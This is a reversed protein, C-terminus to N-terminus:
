ASPIEEKKYDYIDLGLDIGMDGIAALLDHTLTAGINVGDAFLGIFLEVAGGTDRIDKFFSGHQRLREVTRALFNGVDSDDRPTFPTHWYSRDYNGELLTGTPTTRREGVRHTTRPQLALTDTLVQPDITPHFIRLSVKYKYPYM